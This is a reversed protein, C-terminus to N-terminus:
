VMLGALERLPQDYAESYTPFGHVVDAWVVLPIRARIALQAEGILEDASPGM